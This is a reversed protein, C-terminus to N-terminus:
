KLTRWAKLSFDTYVKEGNIIVFARVKYYYTNGSKLEKNNTYSTKTTTFYPETGYGSNKKTSRFIEYGDVKMGEPATWTLRIARKGNLKAAKSKVKFDKKEVNGAAAIQAKEETTLIKDIEAQAAEQIAKVEAETKANKIDANAKDVIKKVEAQEAEDYKNASAAKSIAEKSEAKAKDVTSQTPTTPRYSGGGGGSGSNPKVTLKANVTSVTYKDADATAEVVIDYEGAAAPTVDAGDKQYKMTVTTLAESGVLGTVTYDTDKVPSALSPVTAGVKIAKATATVTVTAKGVTITQTATAEAYTEDAAKTAKVEVTGSKKFTLTGNEALDAVDSGSTIAYAVNGSGAGGTAELQLPQGYTATASSTFAFGTQETEGAAFAMTPMFCAIMMISMLIAFLKKM